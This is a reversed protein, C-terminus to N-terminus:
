KSPTISILLSVLKEEIKIRVGLKKVEAKRKEIFYICFFSLNEIM